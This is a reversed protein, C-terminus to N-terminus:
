IQRKYVDLHTYSVPAVREIMQAYELMMGLNRMACAFGGAGLTEQGVLGHALAITEDKIRAENGGM